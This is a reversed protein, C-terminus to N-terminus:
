SRSVRAPEIGDDSPPILPSRCVTATYIRGTKPDEAKMKLPGPCGNTMTAIGGEVEESEDCLGTLEGIEGVAIEDSLAIVGPDLSITEALQAVIQQDPGFGQILAITQAIELAVNEPRTPPKESLADIHQQTATLEERM